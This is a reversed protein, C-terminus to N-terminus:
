RFAANRVLSERRPRSTPEDVTRGGDDEWAATRDDRSRRAAIRADAREIAGSQTAMSGATPAVRSRSFTARIEEWRAAIYLASWVLGAAGLALVYTMRSFPLGGLLPDNM